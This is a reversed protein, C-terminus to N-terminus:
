WSQRFVIFWREVSHSRPIIPFLVAVYSQLCKLLSIIFLRLPIFPLSLPLSLFTLFYIVNETRTYQLLDHIVDWRITRSVSHRRRHDIVTCVCPFIYDIQKICYLNLHNISFNQPVFFSFCTRQRPNSTMQAHTRWYIVTLLWHFHM